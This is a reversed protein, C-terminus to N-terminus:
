GAASLGLAVRLEEVSRAPARCVYGECVWAADSELDRGRALPLDEQRSALIVRHPLWARAATALLQERLNEDRGTIVIERPAGVHWGAASLLFGFGSPYKRAIEFAAEITAVSAKRYRDDDFWIALRALVEAALSNGSPTANDFVDRPRTILTEGDAPTDFFGGAPDAFRDLMADGLSRATDLFRREGTAEFALLLGWAAGGYDELVGDIRARGDKYSRLVRGDQVLHALLFTAARHAAERYRSEGTVLAAESFAALMWGNWGALIKEDRAPRVRKEREGFLRCRGRAAIERLAELTIGRSSAVAEPEVPVNPINHGEFNGADTIDYLACFIAGEEDGLIRVVEERSWVYFKGEEGESDADLTSYFGGDPSTMERLTWDLTERTVHLLEEDGTAQWAHLYIRALLANDYLMKEFHPVLWREDVSYRHFGGGIQDFLGGRSMRRLTHTVVHLMEKSGTRTAVQLLLELSMSPPFKPATGFGGHVPDFERTIRRAADDVAEPTLESRGTEKSTRARLAGLIHGASDQLKERDNRWAEALAELVRPFGPRGYRDEPPFYTGGWFPVADPTLFMSMPWGGQGAIMQVATMYISDVDPREERDVKISVFERNLIAAISENEFSEREMVHCWHCASYGISLFVPKDESRAREFAEDGWPYWDVPNHAHQLLYPSTENSLRNAM